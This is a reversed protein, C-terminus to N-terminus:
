LSRLSVLHEHVNKSCLGRRAYCSVGQSLRSLIILFVEGLLCNVGHKLIEVYIVQM